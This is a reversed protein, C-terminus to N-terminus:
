VLGKTKFRGYYAWFVLSSILAVVLPGSYVALHDSMDTLAYGAYLPAVTRSLGNVAQLFGIYLGLQANADEDEQLRKTYLGMNPAGTMPCSAILILCVVIFMTFSPQPDRLSFCAVVLAVVNGLLGFGIFARDSVYQSLLMVMVMTLAVLIGIVAYMFSNDLTDWGFEPGTLAPLGVELECLVFNSCFSVVFHIWLCNDVIMRYAARCRSSSLGATASRDLTPEQLDDLALAPSPVAGNMYPSTVSSSSSRLLSAEHDTGALDSEVDAALEGPAVLASAVPDLPPPESFTALILFFLLVLLAVMFFGPNSLRNFVFAGSLKFNIGNVLATTAPGIVIGMLNIGNLMAIAKTRTEAETVRTIYSMTLTANAAGAGVMMRGIMILWPNNVGYAMGYLLNGVISLVVSALFPELMPRRDSWIGFIPMFVLRVASFSGMAYGYFVKSQGLEEVYQAMSPMTVSYEIMGLAGVAVV